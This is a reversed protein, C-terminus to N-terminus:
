PVICLSMSSWALDHFQMCAGTVKFGQPVKQFRQYIHTVQWLKAYSHTVMPFRPYGHPVNPLWPYNHTVIPFRPYGKPDKSKPLNDVNSVCVRVSMLDQLATDKFSFVFIDIYFAFWTLASEPLWWLTITQFFGFVFSESAMNDLWCCYEIKVQSSAARCTRVDETQRVM